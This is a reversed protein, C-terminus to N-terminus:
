VKIYRGSTWWSGGAGVVIGLIMIMAFTQVISVEMSRSVLPAIGLLQETLLPNIYIHVAWLVTIALLGSIAGYSAGQLILPSKIYSPSVGM